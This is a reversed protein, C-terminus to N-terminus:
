VLESFLYFVGDSRALLVLLEVVGAVVAVGLPPVFRYRVEGSVGFSCAGLFFEAVVAGVGVFWRGGFLPWSFKFRWGWHLRWRFLLLCIFGRVLLGM